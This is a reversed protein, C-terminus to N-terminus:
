RLGVPSQLHSRVLNSETQRQRANEGGASQPVHGSVDSPRRGGNAEGGCVDHPRRQQVFDVRLAFGVVVNLNPGLEEGIDVDSMDRDCRSPVAAPVRVRTGGEDRNFRALRGKVVVAIIRDNRTEVRRSGSEHLVGSADMQKRIFAAGIQFDDNHLYNRKTLRPPDVFRGRLRDCHRPWRPGEGICDGSAPRYQPAAPHSPYDRRMSLQHNRRAVVGTFVKKLRKRRWHRKSNLTERFAGRGARGDKGAIFQDTKKEATLHKALPLHEQPSARFLTMAGPSGTPTALRQHVFSKWHDADVEVLHLKDSPMWNIHFGEGIRVRDFRKKV